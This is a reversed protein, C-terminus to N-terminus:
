APLVQDLKELKLKDKERNGTTCARAIRAKARRAKALLVQELKELM